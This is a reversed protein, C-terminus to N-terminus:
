AIQRRISPAFRNVSEKQWRGIDDQQWYTVDHDAASASKWATRASSVADDDNGDFLHIVRTYESINSIEAGYVLFRVQAKNPNEDDAVLVIPQEADGQGNAVAHPLFSDDAFTWLQTDLEDVREQLGCHVVARWDRELCKTLLTPLVRELPQNELHYFLIETMPM